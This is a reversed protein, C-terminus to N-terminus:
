QKKRMRFVVRVAVPILVMAIPIMLGYEPIRYVIWGFFTRKGYLILLWLSNIILGLFLNNILVAPVIHRFYRPKGKGLRSLFLGWVYGSFFATLTFGPFYPGIPFLIAGIFDGAAGVAASVYPGYLLAAMVVPLFAVGIKWGMTNVSCFRSLVVELATLLAAGTLRRLHLSLDKQM